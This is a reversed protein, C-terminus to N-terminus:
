SGEERGQGSADVGPALVLDIIQAPTRGYYGPDWWNDAGGLIGIEVGVAQGPETMIGGEGRLPIKTEVVWRNVPMEHYRGQMAGPENLHRLCPALESYNGDLFLFSPRCEESYRIFGNYSANSSYVYVVDRGAVWASDHDVDFYLRVEFRSSATTEVSPTVEVAVYLFDNDNEIFLDADVRYGEVSLKSADSWEGPSMFGDITPLVRLLGSDMRFYSYPRPIHLLDRQSLVAEECSRFEGLPKESKPMEPPPHKGIHYGLLCLDGLDTGNVTRTVLPMWPLLPEDYGITVVLLYPLILQEDDPDAIFALDLELTGEGTRTYKCTFNSTADTAKLNVWMGAPFVPFLPNNFPPYEPKAFVKCTLHLSVKQPPLPQVALTYKAHLLREGTNCLGMDKAKGPCLIMTTVRTFRSEEQDSIMRVGINSPPIVYVYSGVVFATVVLIVVVVAVLFRKRSLRAM